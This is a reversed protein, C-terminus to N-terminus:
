LKIFKVLWFERGMKQWKRQFHTATLAKLDQSLGHKGFANKVADCQSLNDEAWIAYEKVDTALVFEGDPKMKRIIIDIFDKQLLRNHRHRNRPWPDPFLVFGKEFTADAFNKYFPVRADALIMSVNTVGERQLRTRTKELRPKEIEIGVIKKTANNKALETIFEGNGTGIEFIDFHQQAASEPYFIVPKSLIHALPLQRGTGEPRVLKRRYLLELRTHGANKMRPAHWADGRKDIASNGQVIKKHVGLDILVQIMHTDFFMQRSIRQLGIAM